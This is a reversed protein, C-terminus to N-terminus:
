IRNLDMLSTSTEFYVDTFWYVHGPRAAPMRHRAKQQRLESDQTYLIRDIFQADRHRHIIAITRCNATGDMGDREM